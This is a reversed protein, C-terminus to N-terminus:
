MYRGGPSYMCPCIRCMFVRVQLVAARRDAREGELVRVRLKLDGAELQAMTSEMRRIRLPMAAAAAGLESAQQQVQELLAAGSGRGGLGDGLQLLEAVYPQAVESFRYDSNLTKGIGELTSFARLVFTFTAPFRVLLSPKLLPPSYLFNPSILRQTLQWPRRSHCPYAHGQSHAGSGWLGREGGQIEGSRSTLPSQSCTKM